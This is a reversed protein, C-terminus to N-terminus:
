CCNRNKKMDNDKPNEINVCNSNNININKINQKRLVLIKDILLDFSENVNIKDKASAKIITFHYIEEIEKRMKDTIKKNELSLDCKNEVVVLGLNEFDTNAKISEIWTKIGNYSDIDSVDYMLIIGDAGKYYNKPIVRYREQGATDYVRLKINKNNKEIEKRKSDIGVTSLYNKFEEEFYRMFFCTKGVKSNGLILVKLFIDNDEM